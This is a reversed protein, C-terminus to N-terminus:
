VIVEGFVLRIQTESEEDRPEVFLDHIQYYLINRELEKNQIEGTLKYKVVVNREDFYADIGCGWGSSGENGSVRILGRDLDIQVGADWIGEDSNKDECANVLVGNYTNRVSLIGSEEEWMNAVEENFRKAIERNKPDLLKRVSFKIDNVM